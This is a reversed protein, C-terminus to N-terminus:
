QLYSEDDEDYDEEFEEEEAEEDKKPGRGVQAVDAGADHAARVYGKYAGIKQQIVTQRGHLETVYSQLFGLGPIVSLKLIVGEFLGVLKM